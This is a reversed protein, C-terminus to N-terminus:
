VKQYMDNSYDGDISYDDSPNEVSAAGCYCGSEYSAIGEPQKAFTCYVDADDTFGQGYSYADTHETAFQKEALNIEQLADNYEQQKQELDAKYANLLNGKQESSYEKNESVEVISAAVWQKYNNYGETLDTREQEFDRQSHHSIGRSRSLQM